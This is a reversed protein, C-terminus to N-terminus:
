KGPSQIALKAGAYTVRCWGTVGPDESELGSGVMFTYIGPQSFVPQPKKSATREWLVAKLAAVVSKASKQASFTKAPFLPQMEAKPDAQTFAMFMYKGDPRVVAFEPGHAPPFEFLLVDGDIVRQPTCKLHLSQLGPSEAAHSLSALWVGSLAAALIFLTKFKFLKTM